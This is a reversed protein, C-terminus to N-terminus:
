RLELTCSQHAGWNACFLLIMIHFGIRDIKDLPALLDCCPTHRPMCRQCPHFFFLWVVFSFPALTALFDRLLTHELDPVKSLVELWENDRLKARLLWLKVM